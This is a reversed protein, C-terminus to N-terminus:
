YKINLLTELIRASTFNTALILHINCLLIRIADTIDCVYGSLWWLRRSLCTNVLCLPMEFNRYTLLKAAVFKSQFLHSSSNELFCTVTGQIIHKNPTSKFPSLHLHTPNLLRWEQWTTGQSKTHLKALFTAVLFFHASM